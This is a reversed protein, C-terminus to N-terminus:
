LGQILHCWSALYIPKMGSMGRVIPPVNTIINYVYVGVSLERTDSTTDGVSHKFINDKLAVNQGPGFRKRLFLRLAMYAARGDSDTM